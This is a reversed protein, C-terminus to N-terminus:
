AFAPTVGTPPRGPRGPAVGPVGRGHPHRFRLRRLPRGCSAPSTITSGLPLPGDGRVRWRTPHGWRQSSAPSCPAPGCPTFVRSSGGYIVVPTPRPSKPLRLEDALCLLGCESPEPADRCSSRASSDDRYGEVKATLRGVGAASYPEGFPAPPNSYIRFHGMKQGM